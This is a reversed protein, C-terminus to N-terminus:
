SDNTSTGDGKLRERHKNLMFVKTLLLFGHQAEKSNWTILFCSHM